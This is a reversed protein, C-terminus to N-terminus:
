IFVRTVQCQCLISITQLWLLLIFIYEAPMELNFKYTLSHSIIIIISNQGSSMEFLHWVLM